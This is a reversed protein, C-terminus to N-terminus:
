ELTVETVMAIITDQVEIIITRKTIENNNTKKIAKFVSDNWEWGTLHSQYDDVFNLLIKSSMIDDRNTVNSCLSDIIYANPDNICVSKNYTIDFYRGSMDSIKIDKLSGNKPMGGKKGENLNCQCWTYNKTGNYKIGM